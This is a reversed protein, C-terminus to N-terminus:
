IVLLFLAILIGDIGRCDARRDPKLGADRYLGCPPRPLGFPSRVTADAIRVEPFHLRHRPPLDFSPPVPRSRPLPPSFGDFSISTRRSMYACLSFDNYITHARRLRTALLLSPSFTAGADASLTMDDVAM